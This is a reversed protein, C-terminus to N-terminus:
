RQVDSTKREFGLVEERTPLGECDGHVMTVMSGILNGRKVSDYLSLNEILGSLFGAAFGDGAGVPDVVHENPYGSVNKRESSTYYTAGAAGNKVVITEVGFRLIKPIIEEIEENPFLLKLEDFGPLFFDSMELLEKLVPIYNSSDWLKHRINPDFVVKVNNKRALKIAYKVTEYCSQSLAPTIGTIHLFRAKSINEEKIDHPSLFSAASHKRYYYVNTQNFGGTQKFYIGTSAHPDFKVQNVDVGEGRIVSYIYQGFPDKGLKSIWSVSHGLKSLGIAVNSEAGGVKKKFNETYQVLGNENPEFLVMTEGLTVVDL